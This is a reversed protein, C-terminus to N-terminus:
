GSEQAFFFMKWKRGEGGSGYENQTAPVWEQAGGSGRTDVHGKENVLDFRGLDVNAVACHNM